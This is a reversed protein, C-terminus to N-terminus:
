NGLLETLNEMPRAIVAKDDKIIIPREVLKPTAVILNIIEDQTKQENAIDLEKYEAEKKRLMDRVDSIGLKSVIDKIDEKTFENKLYEFTEFESGNEELIAKAERSKSCRNNHWIKIM